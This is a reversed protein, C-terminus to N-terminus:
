MIGNKFYREINRLVKYETMDSFDFDIWAKNFEGDVFDFYGLKLGSRNIYVRSKGYKEWANASITAGEELATEKIERAWAQISKSTKKAEKWAILLAMKMRAIWDGTMKKAMKVAKKMVDQAKMKIGGRKRIIKIISYM